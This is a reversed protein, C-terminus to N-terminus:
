MGLVLSPHQARADCASGLASVQFSSVLRVSSTARSPPAAGHCATESSWGSVRSGASPSPHDALLGLRDAPVQKPCVSSVHDRSRHCTIVGMCQGVSPRRTTAGAQTCCRRKPTVLRTIRAKGQGEAGGHAAVTVEAWLWGESISESRNCRSAHCPGAPLWRIRVPAVRCAAWKPGTRGDSDAQPRFGLRQRGPLRAAPLWGAAPTAARPQWGLRAAVSRLPPAGIAEGCFAGIAEGCFAGIAEGCFAGMAEGRGASHGQQKDGGWLIGFVGIAAHGGAQTTSPQGLRSGPSTLLPRM